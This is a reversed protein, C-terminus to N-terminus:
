EVLHFNSCKKRWNSRAGPCGPSFRLQRGIELAANHNASTASDGYSQIQVCGDTKRCARSLAVWTDPSCHIPSRITTSAGGQPSSASASSGSGLLSQGPPSDCRWRLAAELLPLSRSELRELTRALGHM